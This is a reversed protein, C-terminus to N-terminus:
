TWSVTIHGNNFQWQDSPCGSPLPKAYEFEVAYGLCSLEEVIIEKVKRNDFPGYDNSDILDIDITASYLGKSIAKYIAKEIRDMYTKAVGNLASKLNAEAATIM